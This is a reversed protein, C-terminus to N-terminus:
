RVSILTIEYILTAYPPVLGNASGTNGFGISSPLLFTSREGECMTGIAEEVGEIVQWEQGYIFSFADNREITSDFIRGDAFRGSYHVAVTDGKEVKKGKGEKDTRKILGSPSPNATFKNKSIIESLLYQEYLAPDKAWCEFEKNEKKYQELSYINIIHIETKIISDNLIASVDDNSFRKLIIDKPLMFLAKDDKSLLTLCDTFSTGQSVYLDIQKNLIASDSQNYCTIGASVVSGTKIRKTEEGIEIIKYHIGSSSEKYGEYRSKQICFTLLFVSLLCLLRFFYIM